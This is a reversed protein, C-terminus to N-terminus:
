GKENVLLYIKMANAQKTSITRNEKSKEISILLFPQM